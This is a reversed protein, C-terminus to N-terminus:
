KKKFLEIAQFVLTGFFLLTVILLVITNIVAGFASFFAM